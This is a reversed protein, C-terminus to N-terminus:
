ICVLVLTASAGKVEPIQLHKLCAQLSAEAAQMSGQHLQLTALEQWVVALTPELQLATEFAKIARPVDNMALAVRASARWVLTRSKVDTSPAALLSATLTVAEALEAQSQLGLLSELLALSLTLRAAASSAALDAPLRLSDSSSTQQQQMWALQARILTVAHRYAARVSGATAGARAALETAHSFVSLAYVNRAALSHPFAHVLRAAVHKAPVNPFLEASATAAAAAIGSIKSAYLPSGVANMAHVLVQLGIAHARTPLWRNGYSSALAISLAAM